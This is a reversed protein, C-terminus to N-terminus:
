WQDLLEDLKTYASARDPVRYLCLERTACLSQYQEDETCRLVLTAPEFALLVRETDKNLTGGLLVRRPLRARPVGQQWTLALRVADVFERRIGVWNNPETPQTLQV